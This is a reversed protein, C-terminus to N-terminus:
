ILLLVSGHERKGYWQRQKQHTQLLSTMTAHFLWVAIWSIVSYSCSSLSHLCSLHLQLLIFSRHPSFLRRLFIITRHNHRKARIWSSYCTLSLIRLYSSTTDKHGSSVDLTSSTGSKLWVLVLSLTIGYDTRTDLSLPSLLFEVRVDSYVEALFSMRFDNSISGISCTTIRTGDKYCAQLVLLTGTNPLTNGCGTGIPMIMGRLADPGMFQWCHGSRYIIPSSVSWLIRTAPLASIFRIM